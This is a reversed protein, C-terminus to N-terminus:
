MKTKLLYQTPSLNYMKKFSKAFYSPNSFGCEYAIESINGCASELLAVSKKLRIMTIYQTASLGTLAKLKRHLQVRSIALEAAFNEISYDPNSIQNEIVMIQCDEADGEPSLSMRVEKGIKHIKVKM